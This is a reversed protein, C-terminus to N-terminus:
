VMAPLDLSVLLHDEPVEQESIPDSNKGSDADADEDDGSCGVMMVALLSLLTM